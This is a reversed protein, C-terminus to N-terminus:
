NRSLCMTLLQKVNNWTNVSNYMAMEIAGFEFFCGTNTPLPTPAYTGLSAHPRVLIPFTTSYFTAESGNIWRFNYRYDSWSVTQALLPLVFVITVIIAFQKKM